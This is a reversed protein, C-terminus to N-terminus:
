PHRAVLSTCSYLAPMFHDHGLDWEFLVCSDVDRIHFPLVLRCLVFSCCCGEFQEWPDHVRREMKPVKRLSYVHSQLQEGGFANQGSPYPTTTQSGQTAFSSLEMWICKGCCEKQKMVHFAQISGVSSPLLFSVTTHSPFPLQLSCKFYMYM